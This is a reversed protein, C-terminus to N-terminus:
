GGIVVADVVAKRSERNPTKRAPGSNISEEVKLSYYGPRDIEVVAGKSCGESQAM